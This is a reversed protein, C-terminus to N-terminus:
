DPLGRRIKKEEDTEEKKEEKKETQTFLQLVKSDHISNQESMKEKLVKEIESFNFCTKLIDKLIFGTITENQILHTIKDQM